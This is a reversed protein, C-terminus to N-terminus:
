YSLSEELKEFSHIEISHITNLRKGSEKIKSYKKFKICKIGGDEPNLLDSPISPCPHDKLWKEQEALTMNDWQEKNPKFVLSFPIQPLNIKYGKAFATVPYDDKTNTLVYKCFVEVAPESTTGKLFWVPVSVGVTEVIKGKVLSYREEHSLYINHSIALTIM